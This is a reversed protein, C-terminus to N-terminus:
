RSSGPATLRFSTGGIDIEVIPDGKQVRVGEEVFWRSVVADRPSRVRYGLFGSGIRDLEKLKDVVERTRPRGILEILLREFEGKRGLLRFVCALARM